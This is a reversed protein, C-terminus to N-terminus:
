STDFKHPKPAVEKDAFGYERLFGTKKLGLFKRMGEVFETTTYKDFQSM